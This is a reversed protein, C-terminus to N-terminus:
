LAVKNYFKGNSCRVQEGLSFIREEEFTVQVAGLPAVEVDAGPAYFYYKVPNINENLDTNATHLYADGNFDLVEKTTGAAIKIQNM